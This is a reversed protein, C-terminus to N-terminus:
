NENKFFNRRWNRDKTSWPFWSASLERSWVRLDLLSFKFGLQEALDVIQRPNDSAKVKEQLDIDNDVNRCFTVLADPPSSTQIDVFV